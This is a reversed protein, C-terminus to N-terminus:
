FNAGLGEKCWSKGSSNKSLFTEGDVCVAGGKEMRNKSLPAKQFAVKISKEM